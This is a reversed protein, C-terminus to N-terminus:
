SSEPIKVNSADNSCRGEYLYELTRSRLPKQALLYTEKRPASLSVDV